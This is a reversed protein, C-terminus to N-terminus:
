FDSMMMAGLLGGMPLGPGGLGGLGLFSSASSPTTSSDNSVLEGVKVRVGQQILKPFVECKNPDYEDNGRLDVVRLHELELLTAPLKEISNKSLNLRQLNECAGISAPVTKLHNGRLKLVELKVLKGIANPLVSIHNDSADLERLEKLQGIEPTMVHIRLNNVRLTMLGPACSELGAPLFVAGKDDLADRLAKDVVVAVQKALGESKAAWALFKTYRVSKHVSGETDKAEIRALQATADHRTIAKFTRYSQSGVLKATDTVLTSLDKGDDDWDGGLRRLSYNCDSVVVRSMEAFREAAEQWTKPPNLPNGFASPHKEVLAFFAKQAENGTKEELTTLVKSSDGLKRAEAFAGRFIALDNSTNTSTSTSASAM